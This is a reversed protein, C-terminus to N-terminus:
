KRGPLSPKKSIKSVSSKAQSIVSKGFESKEKNFNDDTFRISQHFGLDAMNRQKLLVKDKVSSEEQLPREPLNKGEIYDYNELKFKEIGESLLYVNEYGKEYFIKAWRTGNKEDM